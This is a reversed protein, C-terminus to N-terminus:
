CRAESMGTAAGKLRQMVARSFQLYREHTSKHGVRDTNAPTAPTV